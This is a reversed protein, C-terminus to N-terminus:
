WGGALQEIAVYGTSEDSLDVHAVEPLEEIDFTV